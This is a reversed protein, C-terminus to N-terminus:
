QRTIDGLLGFSWGVLVPQFKLTKEFLEYVLLANIIIKVM